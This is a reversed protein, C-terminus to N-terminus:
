YSPIGTIHWCEIAYVIAYKAFFGCMAYKGCIIIANEFDCLCFNHWMPLFYADYAFIQMYAAYKAYVFIKGFEAYKADFHGLYKL